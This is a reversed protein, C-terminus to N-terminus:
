VGHMEISTKHVIMLQIFRYGKDKSYMEKYEKKARQLEKVDVELLDELISETFKLDFLPYKKLCKNIANEKVRLQMDPEFGNAGFIWSPISEIDYMVDDTSVGFQKMLTNPNSLEYGGEEFCLANLVQRKDATNLTQIEEVPNITQTNLMKNEKNKLYLKYMSEGLM